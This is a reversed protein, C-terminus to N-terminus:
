GRSPCTTDGLIFEGLSRQSAECVGVVDVALAEKRLESRVESDLLIKSLLKVLEDISGSQFQLVAGRCRSDSAAPVDSSAVVPCGWSLAEFVVLGFGESPGESPVALCAAERYYRVLVEDPVQGAFCVVEKLGLKQTLRELEELRDGSGVLAARFPIGALFVHHLARILHEPRKYDHSRDLGGVFLVLPPGRDLWPPGPEDIRPEERNIRTPWLPPALVNIRESRVGRRVLTQAMTMTSVEAGDAHRLLIAELRTFMRRVFRDQQLDAHYTAVWRAGLLRGILAAIFASFAPENTWIVEPRFSLLKRALELPHIVKENLIRRSQLYSVTVSRHELKLSRTASPAPDPTLCDRSTFVRVQHLLPIADIGLAHHTEAGGLLPLFGHSVVAIRRSDGRTM